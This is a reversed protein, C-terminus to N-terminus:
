ALLTGAPAHSEILKSLSSATGGRIGLARMMGTIASLDLEMRRSRTSDSNPPGPDHNTCLLIIAVVPASATAARGNM